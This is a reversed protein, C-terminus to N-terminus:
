EYSENTKDNRTCVYVPFQLSELENDKSKTIEKYKVEVIKGIYENKNTWIDLRTIDDFGSGVNVKNGKYNVVLAGLTGQLRGEGEIVDIVELDATYFKKVKILSKTRKCEYPSDLNLIIGEMDHKEAYDLWKDIQTKDNGEYFMPVVDVNKLCYSEIAKKLTKLQIKRKSYTNNSKGSKFEDTTLIDFIILKLETKTDEKSNAIGVGKQFAESDTLGEQNKYILEGDVVINSNALIKELDDKIHNLGKYKKGQRTWFEGNFFVCRSGNLKQSIYFYLDHPLKCNEISTGLMVDFTFILNPIVKNVTKADCGLKLSKTIMQKYFEQQDKPQSRIFNQVVAIDVDTGTNNRKLYGICENFNNIHTNALYQNVNKNIKAKSFGTTIQNDLLFVLCRKFLENDKHKEIIKEKEIISNTSQIEKFIAMINDM